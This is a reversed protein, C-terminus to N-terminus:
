DIVYYVIYKYFLKACLQLSAHLPVWSKSAGPKVQKSLTMCECINQLLTESKPHIGQVFMESKSPIPTVTPIDKHLRRLFINWLSTLLSSQLFERRLSLLLSSRLFGNRVSTLISSRLFESRLSSLLSSLISVVKYIGQYLHCLINDHLSVSLSLQLCVITIVVELLYQLFLGQLFTSTNTIGNLKIMSISMSKSSGVTLSIQNEQHFMTNSEM